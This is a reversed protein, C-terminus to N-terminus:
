GAVCNGSTGIDAAVIPASLTTRPSSAASNSPPSVRACFSSRLAPRSNWFIPLCILSTPLVMDVARVSGITPSPRATVFVAASKSVAMFRTDIEVPAVPSVKLCSVSRARSIPRSVTKLALVAASAMSMSALDPTETSSMRPPAARAATSRAAAAPVSSSGAAAAVGEM